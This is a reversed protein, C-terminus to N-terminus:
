TPLPLSSSILSYIRFSSSASRSIPITIKSSSSEAFCIRLMSASNFILINSRVESIRSIKAMRACVALAFVCTSSACYLYMSGRRCRKHVWKSRWPPPEPAPPPLPETPSRPGPSVCNSISRRIMRFRIDNSFSRRASISLCFDVWRFFRPRIIRAANTPYVLTPLDVNIFRSALLSTNASFLSNAVNSVVTRLTIISLRGNRSESVTPKMRLNGVSRTSEKLDVSSSTRSASRSNCITSIECGSKSSCISTTLLVNASIPADPLGIM